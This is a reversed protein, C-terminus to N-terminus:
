DTGGEKIVDFPNIRVKETYIGINEQSENKSDETNNFITVLGTDM